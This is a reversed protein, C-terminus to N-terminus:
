EYTAWGCKSVLRKKSVFFEERNLLQNVSGLTKKGPLVKGGYATENHLCYPDIGSLNMDLNFSNARCGGNCISLAGCNSCQNNVEINRMTHLNPSHNWLYSLSHKYISNDTGASHQLGIFGCPSVIGDYRVGCVLNGGVCDISDNIGLLSWLSANNRDDEIYLQKDLPFV